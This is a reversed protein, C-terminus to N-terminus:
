PPESVAGRAGPVADAAGSGHDGPWRRLRRRVRQHLGLVAHEHNAHVRPHVGIAGRPLSLLVLLPLLEQEAPENEGRAAKSQERPPRTAGVDLVKWGQQEIATGHSKFTDVLKERSDAARVETLVVTAAWVFDQQWAQLLRRCILAYLKEREPALGVM